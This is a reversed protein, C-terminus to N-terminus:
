YLKPIANITQIVDNFPLDMGISNLYWKISQYRPTNEEKVRRLATERDLAGARIQHSRFTDMETFGAVTYYIYNYFSATGDGIRWTAATDGALEWGYQERLTSMIHNEDWALYHFLYLYDHPMLYSSFFAGLTDLVSSNFYTPNLLYQKGYYAALQATKALPMRLIGTPAHSRIGCFGIKFDTTEYRNGACFVFLKIGTRRKLENAYYFFSKDGATFLPIMGLDPRRLWARVNKRVNGRKWNIDASILIHEIGLKACMRSINRRALDTVMGWDYTYAIPHLGLERKLYHLGYCSDRGGSVGVLCDPKGDPSRYPEVAARLREVGFRPIVRHNRCYTCEGREDFDIFPFTEPIICRTCRRVADIRQKDAFLLDPNDGGRLVKPSYAVTRYGRAEREMEGSLDVIRRAARGDGIPLPAIEDGLVRFQEIAGTRLDILRGDGAELAVIEQDGFQERLEPARLLKKLIYAESAYLCANATKSRCTYLSGNNTALLVHDYDSFFVSIAACGEIAAFARRAADILNAGERQFRRILCLLVETDVEFHRQMDPFRRWLDADNVIIGNHIGVMDGAVVPQNNRNDEQAGNTVLRSHGMLAVPHGLRARGNGPARGNGNRVVEDVVRRYVSTRIFRSAPIPQKLVRIADDVLAALGASEKGRSESLRYLRVMTEEILDPSLTSDSGAIVGFIGCM